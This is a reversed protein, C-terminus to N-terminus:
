LYSELVVCKLQQLSSAAAHIILTPPDSPGAGDCSIGLLQSVWVTVGEMYWHLQRTVHQQLLIAFICDRFLLPSCLAQPAYALLWQM